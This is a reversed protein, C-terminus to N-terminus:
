LCIMCECDHERMDNVRMDRVSMDSVEGVSM